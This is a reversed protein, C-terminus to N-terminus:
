DLIFLSSWLKFCFITPQAVRNTNHIQIEEQKANLVIDQGTNKVTMSLFLFVTNLTWSERFQAPSEWFAIDFLFSHISYSLPLSLFLTHAGIYLRHVSIFPRYYLIISYHIITYINLLVCMHRDSELSELACLFKWLFVSFVVYVSHWLHNWRILCWFLFPFFFRCRCRCRNKHLRFSGTRERQSSLYISFSLFKTHNKVTLYFYTRKYQEKANQISIFFTM